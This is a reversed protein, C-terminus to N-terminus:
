LRIKFYECFHQSRQIWTLFLWTFNASRANHLTNGTACYTCYVPASCSIKLPVYISEQIIKLIMHYSNPYSIKHFFICIFLFMGLLPVDGGLGEGRPDAGSIDFHFSTFLCQECYLFIFAVSSISCRLSSILCSFPIILYITHIFYIFLSVFSNIVPCIFLEASLSIFLYMRCSLVFLSAFLLFYSSLNSSM